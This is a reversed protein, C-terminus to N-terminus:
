TIALQIRLTEEEDPNERFFNRLNPIGLYNKDNYKYYPGARAIVGKAIADNIYATLLDIQGEALFPITISTGDPVSCTKNKKSIIEMDFGIYKGKSDNIWGERKTRLIIQSFHRQAKGGPLAALEDYGGITERMQNTALLTVGKQSLPHVLKAYMLTVLQALLGITKESASKDPNAIPAPIMAPISDVIMLGLHEDNMVSMMIDITEEATAPSTVLLNDTDVGSQKWWVEDFCRELDFLVVLPKDTKQIAATMYQSLLTKGTSEPGYAEICRGLPIGGGLLNDLQPIGIPARKLFLSDDNGKKVLGQKMLENIDPM